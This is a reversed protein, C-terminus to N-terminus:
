EQWAKIKETYMEIFGAATSKDKAEAWIHFFAEDPDPVLLVWGNNFYIKVGDILESKKGKADEIAKRMAQGKKDWSCPVTKHLVEFSPIERSIRSLSLNEESLMEIRKGVAYMADFANQFEPFIFGGMCDGIFAVDKDGAANMINRPSTATRKVKAGFKAALEEIVSSANVPVAITANKHTKMVLYAAILMALDDEV